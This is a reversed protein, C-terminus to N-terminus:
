SLSSHGRHPVPQITFLRRPTRLFTRVLRVIRVLDRQPVPQITFLRLPTRLFTRVLRVLRVIDRHSVPRITFLRLPALYFHAILALLAILPRIRVKTDEIALWPASPGRHGPATRRDQPMNGDREGINLPV